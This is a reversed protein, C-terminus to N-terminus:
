LKMSQIKYCLLKKGKLKFASNKKENGFSFFQNKNNVNKKYFNNLNNLRIFTHHSM